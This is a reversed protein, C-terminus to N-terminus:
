ALRQAHQLFVGRLPEASSSHLFDIETQDGCGVVIKLVHNV